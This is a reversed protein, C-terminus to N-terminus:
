ANDWVLRSIAGGLVFRISKQVKRGSKPVQFKGVRVVEHWWQGMVPIFTVDLCISIDIDTDGKWNILADCFDDDCMTSTAIEITMAYGNYKTQCTERLDSVNKDYKGTQQTVQLALHENTTNM